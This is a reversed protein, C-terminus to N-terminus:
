GAARVGATPAPPPARTRRWGPGCRAAPLEGTVRLDDADYEVHQPRWAGSRYPHDDDDPLTSLMKGYVEVDAM